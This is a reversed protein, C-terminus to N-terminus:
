EGEYKNLKSELSRRTKALRQKSMALKVCVENIDKSRNGGQLYLLLNYEHDTLRLQEKATNLSTTKIKQSLM